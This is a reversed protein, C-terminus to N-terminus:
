FCYSCQYIVFVTLTLCQPTIVQVLEQINVSSKSHMFLNYGDYTFCCLFQNLCESVNMNRLVQQLVLAESQDTSRLLAGNLHYNTFKNNCAVVKVNCM